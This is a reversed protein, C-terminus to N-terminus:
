DAFLHFERAFRQPFLTSLNWLLLAKGIERRSGHSIWNPRKSLKCTVQADRQHIFTHVWGRALSFQNCVSPFTVKGTNKCKKRSSNNRRLGRWNLAVDNIRPYTQLELMKWIFPIPKISWTPSTQNILVDPPSIAEIVGRSAGLRRKDNNVNMKISILYRNTFFPM